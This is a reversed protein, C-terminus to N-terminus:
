AGCRGLARDFPFTRDLFVTKRMRCHWAAATRRYKPTHLFLTVHEREWLRWVADLQPV